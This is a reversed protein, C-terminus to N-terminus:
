PVSQLRLQLAALDRAIHIEVPTNAADKALWLELSGDWYRGEQSKDGRVTYHRTPVREGDIKRSEEGRPVVVVPYIKGDSWIEMRRTSTPPDQRIAYIGSVVDKVGAATLDEQKSKEEGRWRYSSWAREANGSEGDIRSGYRWFGDRSQESTIVLETVLDGNARKLTMVGDGEDPLFIGAVRGLLRGLNWRYHLEEPGTAPAEAALSPLGPVLTAALLLPALLRRARRTRQPM